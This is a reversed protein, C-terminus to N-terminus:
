FRPRHRWNTSGHRLPLATLKVGVARLTSTRAAVDLSVAGPWVARQNRIHDRGADALFGFLEYTANVRIKEIFFREVGNAILYGGMLLGPWPQARKRLVWLVLGLGILMVVEYFPTPWVAEALQMCHEDVCGPIPVGENIVNHPYRFSWMWDPLFWGSPPPAPHYHGLRRRRLAPLRHARRWCWGVHRACHCRGYALLGAPTAKYVVVGWSAAILGGFIALGQGSFFQRVFESISSPPVELIGFIKAGFLGSLAAIIAIDATREWPEITTDVQKPQPHKAREQRSSYYTYASALAAGVLGFAFNGEGSLLFDKASGTTHGMLLPVLKWGILWGFLASGLYDGMTAGRGVWVTSLRRAASFQGLGARRRIELRLMAAATITGLALFLGFTQVIAFGNDRATGFLDHLIYSLNPYMAGRLHLPM